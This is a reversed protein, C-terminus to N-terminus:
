DQTIKGGKIYDKGNTVIQIMECLTMTVTISNITLYYTLRKQSLSTIHWSFAQNHPHSITSRNKNNNYNFLYQNPVSQRLFRIVQFELHKIPVRQIAPATEAQIIKVRLVPTTEFQGISTNLINVLCQLAHQQQM